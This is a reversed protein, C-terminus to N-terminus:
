LYKRMANFCYSTFCRASFLLPLHEVKRYLNWTNKIASLKNHSVTESHRRYKALSENIGLGVINHKLVNLWTAADEPVVDPMILLDKKVIETDFMVTHSCTLPACLFKNYDMKEPVHITKRYEGQPGVIDYSTYCMGCNKHEMFDLQKKLKDKMWLDDSDLYAIYKGKAEHLAMNRAHAAGLNVPSVLLKVRSDIDSYKEVISCTCDQSGDDSIILEWDSYTQAIVSNISESIYKERNFSAMIISVM